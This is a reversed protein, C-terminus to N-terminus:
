KVKLLRKLLISELISIFDWCMLQQIIMNTEEIRSRTPPWIISNNIIRIFYIKSFSNCCLRDGITLLSSRDDVPLRNLYENFQNQIKVSTFLKLQHSDDTLVTQDSTVHDKVEVM